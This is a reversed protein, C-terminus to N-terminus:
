RQSGTQPQLALAMMESKIGKFILKASTVDRLAMPFLHRVDLKSRLHLQLFKALRHSFRVKEALLRLQCLM